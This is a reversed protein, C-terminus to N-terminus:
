LLAWRKISEILQEKEIHEIELCLYLSAEIVEVKSLNKKEKSCCAKLFISLSYFLDDGHIFNRVDKTKLLKSYNDITERFEKLRGYCNNANLYNEIHKHHDFKIIGDKITCCKKIKIWRMNLNLVENALRMFFLNPLFNCLQDIVHIPQYKLGGYGINFFKELIKENLLYLDMSSYDSYELHPIQFKKNLIDHFDKDVICKVNYNPICKKKLELALIIVKNKNNAKLSLDFREALTESVEVSNIPYVKINNNGFKKFFMNFISKERNGEVWLDRIKPEHIYRMIIEESKRIRGEISM